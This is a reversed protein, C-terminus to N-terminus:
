AAGDEPRAFRELIASVYAEFGTQQRALRRLKRRSGASVADASALAASVFGERDAPPVFQGVGDTLGILGIDAAYGVFPTGVAVAHIATTPGPDQRSTLLYVDAARYWALSDSVFGPLTLPLGDARAVDALDKAWPDLAGLWVFRAATQVAVIRRAADLFLDFGKRLDAHGAGIFVPGPREKRWARMQRFASLPAPPRLIGPRLLTAGGPDQALDQVIRPMSAVLRAGAARAMRLPQMLGHDRLHDPMEHIMLLCNQGARALPEALDAAEATNVLVPCGHALGAALGEMDHGEALILVPGLRRFDELGPGANGLLFVPDWGRAQLARGLDRTLIPVGAAQADHAVLLLPRTLGAITRRMCDASVDRDPPAPCPLCGLAVGKTVYHAFPKGAGLPLYCRRYFGADFDASPTRGEADGFLMFHLAVKAGLGALDEYQGGYYDPDILPHPWRKEGRGIRFLFDELATKAGRKNWNPYSKKYFATSFYPSPDLGMGDGTTQFHNLAEAAGLWLGSQRRYHGADFITRFM